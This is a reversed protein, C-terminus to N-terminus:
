AVLTSRLHDALRLALAVLKVTPSDYSGTPFVSSGAMYLNDIGFVRCNADVVGRRPDDAMRTTGMQHWGGPFLNGWWNREGALLWPLLKMRGAGARGLIEALTRGTGAMSDRDLESPRWDAVVRRQGLHDLEDSLTIRSESNPAQESELWCLAGRTPGADGRLAHLFRLMQEDFDGLTMWQQERLKEIEMPGGGVMYVVGNLLRRSQQIRPALGLGQHAGSVRRASEPMLLNAHSAHLQILGLPKAAPHGMYHRGVLDRDNGLGKPNVGNSLLLIRANEIGGCALVTARSSVSFRKGSLTQVEVREITRAEPDPVIERANARLVVRVRPAAELEARHAQGFRIQKILALKVVLGERTLASGPGALPGRDMEVFREYPMLKCVRYAREFYPVLEDASLPWGSLPVWPRHELDLADFPRCIGGWFNTTGGFFRLRSDQLPHQPAGVRRGVYLSQTEANLTYAGSELLVVRLPTQRLERAISIGAPGAGIVCVDARLTEGEDVTDAYGIM